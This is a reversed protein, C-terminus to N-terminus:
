NLCNTIREFSHNQFNNSFDHEAGYAILVRYNLSGAKQIFKFVELTLKAERFDHVYYRNNLDIQGGKLVNNLVIQWDQASISKHVQPLFQLFYLLWPASNEFLFKKQLDNLHEYYQPIKPFLQHALNYLQQYTATTGDSRTITGQYQRDRLNQYTQPNLNDNVVSEEFVVFNPLTSTTNYFYITHLLQFQSRVTSEYTAEDYEGNTPYHRTPYHLVFSQLNFTCTKFNSDQLSLSYGFGSPSAFGAPLRGAQSCATLTVFFLLVVLAKM